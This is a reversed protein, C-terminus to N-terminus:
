TFIETLVLYIQRAATAGGADEESGARRTGGSRTPNANPKMV